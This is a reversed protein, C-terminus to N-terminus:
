FSNSLDIQVTQGSQAAMTIAETVRLNMLGDHASVLPQADGRVVDGFHAMQRAIPDERVLDVTGVDFPKWWSRDAVSPYSKTRMTPIALSGNTGAVM